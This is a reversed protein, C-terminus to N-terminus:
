NSRPPQTTSTKKNKGDRREAICCSMAAMAFTKRFKKSLIPTEYAFKSTFLSVFRM